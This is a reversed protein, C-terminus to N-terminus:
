GGPTAQVTSADHCTRGSFFYHLHYLGGRLRPPLCAAAPWCLLTTRRIRGRPPLRRYSPPAVLRFTGRCAPLSHPSAPIYRPFLTTVLRDPLSTVPTSLTNYVSAAPHARWAYLLFTTM